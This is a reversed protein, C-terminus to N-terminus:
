KGSVAPETPLDSPTWLFWQTTEDVLATLRPKGSVPDLGLFQFDHGGQKTLTQLVYADYGNHKGSYRLYWRCHPKEDQGEINEVIKIQGTEDTALLWNRAPSNSLSQIVCAQMLEREPAVTRITWYTDGHNEDSRRNLVLEKSAADFGLYNSFVRRPTASLSQFTRPRVLGPMEAHTTTGCILLAALTILTLLRQGATKTM